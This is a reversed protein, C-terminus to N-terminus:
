ESIQKQIPLLSHERHPVFYNKISIIETDSATGDESLKTAPRDGHLRLNSRSRNWTIQTNLTAILFTEQARTLKKKKLIM